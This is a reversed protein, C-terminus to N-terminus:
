NSRIIGISGNENELALIFINYKKNYAIDRIRKGVRIKEMTIIRSFNSDFTVRYVSLGRLSTILYNNQWKKSFLEPVKIIQSIGISPVFAYIPEEYDFNFHNKKYKFEETKIAYTEGYSSIPWGYNKGEIIKNIEDGGRPGHETSIIINKENVLLGQPNRHGSSIPRIKKSKIDILLMITEIKENHVKTILYNKDKPYKTSILMSINGNDNYIAMRGGFYGFKCKGISGHSYFEEFNLFDFNLDAFYIQRSVCNENKKRFSIFIKKKYVMTDDVTITNPLNNKIKIHKSYNNNLIDSIKYLLITGNAATLIIDDKFTEIYFPVAKKGGKKQVAYYSERSELGSLLVEQYNLKLFQTQPFMRENKFEPVFYQYLCVEEKILFKLKNPLLKKAIAVKEPSQSSLFYKGSFILIISFFLLILFLNVFKKKM